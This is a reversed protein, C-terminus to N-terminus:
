GIGAPQGDESVAGATGASGQSRFDEGARVLLEHVASDFDAGRQELAGLLSELFTTVRIQAETAMAEADATRQELMRVNENAEEVLKEAEARAARVIEEAKAESEAQVRSALLLAQMIEKEHGRGQAVKAELEALRGRVRGYEALISRLSAELKDLLEDTAGREYGKRALPLSREQLLKIPDDTSM